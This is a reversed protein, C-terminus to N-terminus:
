YYYYICIFTYIVYIYAIFYPLGHQITFLERYFPSTSSNPLAIMAMNKQSYFVATSWDSDLVPVLWKIFYLVCVTYYQQAFAFSRLESKQRFNTISIKPVNLVDKIMYM